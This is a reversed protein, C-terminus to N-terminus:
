NELNVIFKGMVIGLKAITNFERIYLDYKKKDNEAMKLKLGFAKWIIVVTSCLFYMNMIQM